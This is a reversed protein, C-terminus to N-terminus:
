PGVSTSHPGCASTVSSDQSDAYPSGPAKSALPQSKLPGISVGAHSVSGPTFVCTWYLSFGSQVKSTTTLRLVDFSNESEQRSPVAHLGCSTVTTLFAFATGGAGTGATPSLTSLFSWRLSSLM